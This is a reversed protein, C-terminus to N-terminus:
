SGRYTAYGYPALLLPVHHHQDPATVEFVVQVEPYFGRTGSAAFYAATDFTLRWVGADLGGEPLLGPLRGDHNTSGSAVRVFGGAAQRDLSIPVGVAPRGTATDLVHTTLPSGM